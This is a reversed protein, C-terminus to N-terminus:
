QKEPKEKTSHNRYQVIQDPSSLIKALTAQIKTKVEANSADRIWLSMITEQGRISVILGCIDDVEFQEGIMAFVVAEWDKAAILPDTNKYRMFFKGGHRNADDEWMPKIGTKFLDYEAGSPMDFPRLLHNYLSWFEEIQQTYAFIFWSHM